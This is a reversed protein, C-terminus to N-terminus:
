VSCCAIFFYIDPPRCFFRYVSYVDQLRMPFDLYFNYITFGFRWGPFYLPSSLWALSILHLPHISKFDTLFVNTIGGGM